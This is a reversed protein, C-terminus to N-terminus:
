GRAQSSGYAAPTVMFFSYTPPRIHGTYAVLFAHVGGFEFCQRFGM